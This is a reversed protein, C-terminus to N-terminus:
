WLLSLDASNVVHCCVFSWSLFLCAYSFPLFLIFLFFIFFYIFLFYFIFFLFFYFFFFVFFIFLGSPGCIDVDLLGVQMGQRALSFALQCSVSSKGVGGKGSLVEFTAYVVFMCMCLFMVNVNVKLNM